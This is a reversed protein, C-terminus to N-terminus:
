QTEQSVNALLAFEDRRRLKFALQAAIAGLVIYIVGPGLWALGPKQPGFLNLIWPALGLVSLLVPRDKSLLGVVVGTLIAIGPSFVFRIMLSLHAESRGPLFTYLLYGSLAVLSHSVIIAMVVILIRRVM